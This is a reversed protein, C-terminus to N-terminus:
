IRFSVGLATYYEATVGVIRKGASLDLMFDDSILYTIGGDMSHNASEFQPAFGFVEAYCGLKKSLSYGLTATYLWTRRQNGADWQAGLNYGLNLKDTLTHQMTFRFNPMYYNSQYNASAWKPLTLHAILSTKPRWKKEGFFNIKFGLQIPQLGSFNEKLDNVMNWETILRLEIQETLGYKSLTSPLSYNHQDVDKKYSFGSEVQFRGKPVTFPTETQDPRDCQIPSQSWLNMSILFLLVNLRNM